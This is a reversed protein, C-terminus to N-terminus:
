GAGTHADSPQDEGARAAAVRRSLAVLVEVDDFFGLHPDAPGIAPGGGHAGSPKRRCLDIATLLASGSPLGGSQQWDRTSAQLYPSLRHLGDRCEILRRYYGRSLWRLVPSEAVPGASGSYQAGDPGPGLEDDPRAQAEGPFAYRLETWLPELERAIHRQKQLIRLTALSSWIAPIALGVVTTLLGAGMLVLGVSTLAVPPPQGIWRIVGSTSLLATAVVLTISGIQLTRLGAVLSAPIPRRLHGSVWVTAVIFAAAYYTNEILFFRAVFGSGVPTAAGTVASGGALDALQDRLEPPTTTSNGTLALIAAALLAAQWWWAVVTRRRAASRFRQPLPTWLIFALLCATAVLRLAHEVTRADLRDLGLLPTGTNAALGFPWSIAWCLLLGLLAILRPAERLRSLQTALWLLGCALVVGLTVYLPTM